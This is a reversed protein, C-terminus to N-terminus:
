TSSRIELFSSSLYVSYFGSWLSPVDLINLCRLRHYLGRSLHHPIQQAHPPSRYLNKTPPRWLSQTRHPPLPRRRITLGLGPPNHAYINYSLNQLTSRIRPSPRNTITQRKPSSPHHSLDYIRTIRGCERENFDGGGVILVMKLSLPLGNSEFAM